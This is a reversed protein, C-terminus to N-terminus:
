GQHHGAEPASVPLSPATSPAFSSAAGATDPRSRHHRLHHSHANTGFKGAEYNLAPITLGYPETKGEKDHQDIEVRICVDLGGDNDKGHTEFNAAKHKTGAGFEGKSLFSHGDKGDFQNESPNANEPEAHGNTAAARNNPSNETLMAYNRSPMTVNNSSRTKSSNGPDKDFLAMLTEDTDADLHHIKNRSALLNAIAAPPPKNVIASSIVNVIYRHDQEVPIHLNPNSYFRGLAALHVDGGLITLRVSFDACVTQLRKILNNREKKHTRATYHDDLDDLLDVSGDFHNFVGGGFGFRRNLFKVPAILPSSFVNELWTLRPYAIPIGLLLILHRFPRGAAAAAGLEDRVRNFILDYTEPYNVQHRTREIRADIGMFAIRAGLKAFMNMSHQAVYPGPSSGIIYSSDFSQERVFTDVLQVPDHQDSGHETTAPVDSTYTSIPPALHHQFLMYYKHATGGIGRFVDCKMFENVYSGFGDIIDHDDWINLQPIQGNATAFPETSYWRIYNNLYYDDCAARLSEPFPFDRRKKPNGIDTWERLPGSVRIGDNYIQDGGGIMVHFPTKAHNRVVDNWLAPGSWADEDTGVSFGNCSHFMIRMSEDIAPVFFYNTKPQTTSKYRVDAISYAWKSETDAIDCVLPFQWFTNRPDSYLCIGAVDTSNAGGIDVRTLTLTPQFRQIKGGGKIVLLVSGHWTRDEMRRYNLLPGCVVEKGDDVIGGDHAGDSNSVVIPKYNGAGSGDGEVRASNLFNTLDKTDASSSHADRAIAARAFSSSEQHRWKNASAYPNRQDEEIYDINEPAAM